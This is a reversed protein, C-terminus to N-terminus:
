LHMFYVEIMNMEEIVGEKGRKDGEGKFLKLYNENHYKSLICV